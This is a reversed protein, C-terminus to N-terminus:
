AENCLFRDLREEVFDPGFIGNDWTFLYRMYGVDKLNWDRLAERFDSIQNPNRDNGGNM